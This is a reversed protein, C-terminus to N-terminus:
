QLRRLFDEVHAAWLERYASLAHGNPGPVEFELFTGQGGLRRFDEFNARSHPMSYYFDRHGYMWLTPGHFNAGARFLAGNIERATSCGEGVWGGVFNIVGAVRESHKGAYAVSLIGGRSAGGILPATKAVDRRKQLAGIAGEIDDLAREAGALSKAPDCTYGTTQDAAFGEDYLGESKGRGRRQPFAVLWGREVFHDAVAFSWRTESFLKPDTGAGTSGHNFVFLPFPGDGLPRFLAVELRTPKGEGRLSTELFERTLATWRIPARGAMLDAPDVRWLKGNNRIGGSEFVTRLAGSPMLEYKTTFAGGPVTLLDGSIEAEYRRWAAKAGVPAHEAIASVVRAHGGPKIEEVVLIHRHDGAWTGAWAGLFRRENASSDGATAVLTADEPIPVGEKFVEGALAAGPLFWLLALVVSKRLQLVRTLKSNPRM